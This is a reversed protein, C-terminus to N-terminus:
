KSEDDDQAPPEVFDSGMRPMPRFGPAPGSRPLPRRLATELRRAMDALDSHLAPPPVPTITAPEPPVETPPPVPAAPLVDPARPDLTSGRSELPALREVSAPGFEQRLRALLPHTDEAAPVHQMPANPPFESALTRPSPEPERATGLPEPVRPQEKLLQAPHPRLPPEVPDLWADEMPPAAASPEVRPEPAGSPRVTPADRAPAVPVRLINQEIMLDTPGGIMVLHEINNRRFLVVRRRGDVAAVELVTLRPQRGGASGGEPRSRALRRFLWFCIALLGLLILFAVLYTAVAGM